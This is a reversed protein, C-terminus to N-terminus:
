NGEDQEKLIQSKRASIAKNFDKKVGANKDRNKHFYDELKKIDKIAEIEGKTEVSIDLPQDLDYNENDITEINQFIDAFHVKCAKKMITKMCMEPFWNKWIFDTKAVKRHKQIDSVSLLTIFEGRSNKIVCYGGVINEDSQGFPNNIDHRYVVKGSDKQFKFSDDKYVLQIDVKSEPYALLMKNKFAVYDYSVGTKQITIHVGDFKLGDSVVMKFFKALVEDSRQSMWPNKPANDKKENQIKYCYDLYRDVDDKQHDSLLARLNPRYNM